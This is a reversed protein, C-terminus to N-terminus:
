VVTTYNRIIEASSDIDHLRFTLSEVIDYFDRSKKKTLQSITKSIKEILDKTSEKKDEFMNEEHPLFDSELKKVYEIYKIFVKAIKDKEGSELTGFLENDLMFDEYENRELLNQLDKLQRIGDDEVFVDIDLRQSEIKRIIMKSVFDLEEVNATITPVKM